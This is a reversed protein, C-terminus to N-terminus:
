STMLGTVIIVYAMSALLAHTIIAFWTSGTRQVVFPLIFYFPMDAFMNSLTYLHFPVNWLAGNVVWAWQGYTAEHRPLLYGRWVLEGGLVGCVAWLLWFPILWWNEAILPVGMFTSIGDSLASYPDKMIEPTSSAPAFFPIERLIPITWAMMENLILILVFVAPLLLWQRRTMKQLRFRAIFTRWDPKETSVYIAIILIANGITPVLVSVSWAFILPIGAETLRPVLYVVSLFILTGPLGFILASQWFPIPKISSNNM